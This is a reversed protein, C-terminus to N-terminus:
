RGRGRADCARGARAAAARSPFLPNRVVRAHPYREGCAAAIERQGGPHWLLLTEEGTASGGHLGEDGHPAEGACCVMRSRAHNMVRVQAGSGSALATLAVAPPPAQSDGAAARATTRRGTHNHFFPTIPLANFRIVADHADIYRGLQARLLGGGNGVVACTRWRGRERLRLSRKGVGKLASRVSAM